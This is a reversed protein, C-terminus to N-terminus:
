THTPRLTIEVFHREIAHQGFTGLVGTPHLHLVDAALAQRCLFGNRAHALLQSAPHDVQDPACAQEQRIIERKISGLCQMLHSNVLHSKSRLSEEPDSSFSVDDPLIAPFDLDPGPGFPAIVFATTRDAVDDDCVTGLPDNPSGSTPWM